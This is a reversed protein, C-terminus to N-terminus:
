LWIRKITKQRGEVESESPIFEASQRFLAGFVVMSRYPSAKPASINLGGGITSRGCFDFEQLIKLDLEKLFVLGEAPRKESNEYKKNSEYEGYTGIEGYEAIEEENVKEGTFFAQLVKEDPLNLDHLAEFVKKSGKLNYLGILDALKYKEEEPQPFLEILKRLIGVQQFLDINVVYGYYNIRYLINGLKQVDWTGHTNTSGNAPDNIVDIVKIGLKQFFRELKFAKLICCMTKTGNDFTVEHTEGIQDLLWAGANPGLAKLKVQIQEKESIQKKDM